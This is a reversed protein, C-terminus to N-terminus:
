YGDQKIMLKRSLILLYEEKEKVQFTLDGLNDRVFDRIVGIDMLYGEVFLRRIKRILSYKENRKQYANYNVKEPNLLDEIEELTRSCLFSAFLSGVSSGAVIRPLLGEEYLCKIVGYHYRGIGAGGINFLTM